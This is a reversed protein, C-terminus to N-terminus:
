YSLYSKLLEILLVNPQRKRRKIRLFDEIFMLSIRWINGNRVSKQLRGESENDQAAEASSWLVNIEIFILKWGFLEELRRELTEWKFGNFDNERRSLRYDLILLAFELFKLTGGFNSIPISEGPEWWNIRIWAFNAFQNSRHPFSLSLFSSLKANPQWSKNASTVKFRAKVPLADDILLQELFIDSSRFKGVCTDFTFLCIRNIYKPNAAQHGGRGEM